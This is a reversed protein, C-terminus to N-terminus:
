IRIVVKGLHKASKLYQYAEAAQPLEFVSDVVPVIKNQEIARLLGVFLPKGGVFIGRLTANKMMLPYPSLNGDARTLVGILAIEGGFGVAQYSHPLTGEGGLEVVHDVGLGNSLALVEREWGPHTKYNITGDAGLRRAHDLKADNSSTILVRAGAAKALQLAFISVGGTGLTLVTHGPLIAKGGTLANWATVGACPLTAAQEFSLYAPIKLLGDPNFVRYEALMGDLPSGLAAPPQGQTFTAVVRDGVAFGEVGAGVAEIEGAGDSLPITNRAVPGAFYRGSVIALDRYNLSAARIRVLVENPGPEPEVRQAHVLGEIGSSGKMVEVVRM